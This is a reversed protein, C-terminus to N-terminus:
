GSLAQDHRRPRPAARRDRRGDTERASGRLLRGPAFHRWGGWVGRLQRGARDHHDAQRPESACLGLHPVPLRRGRAGQVEDADAWQPDIGQGPVRALGARSPPGNQFLVPPGIRRVQLAPTITKPQPGAAVAADLALDAAELYREMQVPSINLAAAVNDFGFAVPDEPLMDKLDIDVGLLDRVTNQYEVRNLRRLVTRGEPKRRAAVEVLRADIWQIVAAAQKADPRPQDKPPMEGARLRNRISQWQEVMDPKTFDAEMRDLRLGGKPKKEGHCQQCHQRLFAAVPADPPDAAFVGASRTCWIAAAIGVSAILGVCWVPTFGGIRM